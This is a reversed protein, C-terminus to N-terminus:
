ADKLGERLKALQIEERDISINRPADIALKVKGAKVEIVTIKVNGAIIVSEGITRRLVLM